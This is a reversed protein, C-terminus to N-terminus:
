SVSCLELGVNSHQIEKTELEQCFQIVQYYYLIM